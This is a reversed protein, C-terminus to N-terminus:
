VIGTQVLQKLRSCDLGRSLHWKVALDDLNQPGPRDGHFFSVAPANGATTENAAAALQQELAGPLWDAVMELLYAVRQKAPGKQTHQPPTWGSLVGAMVVGLERELDRYGMVQENHCVALLARFFDDEMDMSM